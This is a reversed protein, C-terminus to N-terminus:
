TITPEPLLSAQPVTGRFGGSSFIPPTQPPYLSRLAANDCSLAALHPQMVEPKSPQIPKLVLFPPRYSAGPSGLVRLSPGPRTRSPELPRWSLRLSEWTAELPALLRVFHGVNSGFSLIFGNLDLVGSAGFSNYDYYRHLKKYRGLLGFFSNFDNCIQCSILKLVSRKIREPFAARSCEFFRSSPEFHM